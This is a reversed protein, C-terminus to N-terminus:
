NPGSDTILNPRFVCVVRGCDNLLMKGEVIEGFINRREFSCITIYYAGCSSYDYGSMRISRRHKENANLM